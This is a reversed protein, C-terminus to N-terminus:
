IKMWLNIFTANIITPVLGKEKLIENAKLAHQLMKGTAIIALKGGDKIVEWKGEIIEKIPELGEIEDGGRPYRIAVPAAKKIAWRLLTEVEEFCKPAVITM